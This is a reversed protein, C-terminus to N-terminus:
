CVEKLLGLEDALEGPEYDIMTIQHKQCAMIFSFRDIGAFECAAGASLHGAKYMTLAAYLKIQKALETPSFDIGFQDPIDLTIQM